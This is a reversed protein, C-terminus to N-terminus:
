MVFRKLLILVALLHYDLLLLSIAQKMDKMDGILVSRLRLTIGLNDLSNSRNPHPAPLQALAERYYYTCLFPRM